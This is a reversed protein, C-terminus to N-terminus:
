ARSGRRRSFTRLTRRADAQAADNLLTQAITTHRAFHEALVSFAEDVNGSQQALAVSRVLADTMRSMASVIIVPQARRQAGIIRATRAFAPTDEISTGGFKMVLPKIFMVEFGSSFRICFSFLGAANQM